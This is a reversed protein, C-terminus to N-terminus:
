IPIPQCEEHLILQLIMEHTLKFNTGWTLTWTVAQISLLPYQKRAIVFPVPHSFKVSLYISFSVIM